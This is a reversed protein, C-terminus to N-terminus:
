GNFSEHMIAMLKEEDDLSVRKMRLGYKQAIFPLGIDMAKEIYHYYRNVYSTSVNAWVKNGSADRVLAYKEKPKRSGRVNKRYEQYVSRTKSEIMEGTNPNKNRRVNERVTWASYDRHSKDAVKDQSGKSTATGKGRKKITYADELIHYHPFNLELNPSGMEFAYGNLGVPIIQSQSDEAVAQFLKKGRKIHKKLFNEDSEVPINDILLDRIDKAFANYDM